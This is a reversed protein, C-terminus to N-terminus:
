RGRAGAACQLYTARNSPVYPCELTPTVHLMYGRKIYVNNLQKNRDVATGSRGLVTTFSSRIKAGEEVARGDAHM